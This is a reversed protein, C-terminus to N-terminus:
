VPALRPITGTCGSSGRCTTGMVRRPKRIGCGRCENVTKANVIPPTGRSGSRSNALRKTPTTTGADPHTADGDQHRTALGVFQRLACPVGAGQSTGRREVKRDDQCIKGYRRELESDAEGQIRELKVGSQLLGRRGDVWEDEIRRTERRNWERIADQNERCSEAYRDPDRRRAASTSPSVEVLDCALPSPFLFPIVARVLM